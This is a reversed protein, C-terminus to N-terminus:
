AAGGDLRALRAAGTMTLRLRWSKAYSLCRRTRLARCQRKLYPLAVDLDVACDHVSGAPNAAAWRLVCLRVISAGDAALDIAPSASM